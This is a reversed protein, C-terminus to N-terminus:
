KMGLKLGKSLREVAEHVRRARTEEKKTDSIWAVYMRRYSPALTDFFAQAKPSLRLAAALETPFPRTKARQSASRHGKMGRTASALAKSRATTMRGEKTLKTVRKLNLFSWKSGPHRPTFKQRYCEEDIRQVLSDVWGFCLAEEVADEYSVRPKGSDKKFYM